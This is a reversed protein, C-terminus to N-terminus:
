YQPNYILKQLRLLLVLFIFTLRGKFLKCYRKRNRYKASILQHYKKADTYSRRMVADKFELFNWEDMLEQKDFHYDNPFIEGLYLRTKIIGQRYKTDCFAHCLSTKLVRRVTTQDDLFAFKTHLGWVGNTVYDESPLGRKIIEPWDMLDFLEMRVFMASSLGLPGTKSYQRVDGNEVDVYAKPHYNLKGDPTLVYGATFCVGFESNAEMFDVQKQLKYDDVWYDDGDMDAMYKGRMLKCVESFNTMMGHNEDHLLLKIKDPYKRQYECCIDRTSDSGCDEGIIIEFDFDTKQSLISDLCQKIYMEQNYTFVGVSVLPNTVLKNKDFLIM